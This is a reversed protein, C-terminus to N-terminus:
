EVALMAAILAVWIVLVIVLIVIDRYRGAKAPLLHVIRERCLDIIAM